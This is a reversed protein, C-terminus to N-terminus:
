KMMNKNHTELDRLVEYLEGDNPPPLPLDFGSSSEDAFNGTEM